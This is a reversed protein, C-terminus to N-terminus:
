STIIVATEEEEEEFGQYSASIVFSFWSLNIKKIKYKSETLWVWIAWILCDKQIQQFM